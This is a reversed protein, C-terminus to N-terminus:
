TADLLADVAPALREAFDAVAVTRLTGVVALPPGGLLRTLADLNGALPAFGPEIVNAVWGAFPSRGRAAIAEYTLRAHNLCGLRVGVVLLVPLGLAEPLDSLFGQPHLPVRWGGAGEVIALEFGRVAGAYWRVMEALEIAVGAEAAALHPAIPPAFCWPNVTAYDLPRSAEAALTLADANRLGDPTPEAGSAVPKLGCVQSGRRRLARLLGAAVCTKGVGTDTGTVFLGRTV